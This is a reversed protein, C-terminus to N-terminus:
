EQTESVPSAQPWGLRTMTRRPLDYFVSPLIYENLKQEMESRLTELRQEGGLQNVQDQLGVLIATAAEAVRKQYAIAIQRFHEDLIKTMESNITARKEAALEATRRQAYERAYGFFSFFNAVGVA